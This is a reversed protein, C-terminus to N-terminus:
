AALPEVSPLAAVARPAARHGIRVCRHVLSVGAVAPLVALASADACASALAAAVLCGSVAGLDWGGEAAFHFSFAAGSRQAREYLLSMVVPVYLANVAAGTLSAVAAADPWWAAAARLAFGAALLLCVANLMVERRGRDISRGCLWSVLAGALGAAANIAGLAQYHSGLASFLIMPWAIVLGSSLWGDAAFTALALRDPALLTERLSPVPGAPIAPLLSLPLTSLLTTGAALGFTAAPGCGTLLAAGALPGAVNILTGITTRLGVQRGRTTSDGCVATAAHYIPWYLAEGVAVCLMWAALWLPRDAHLLPLFQLGVLSAGAVLACRYGTRRVLELSAFRLVARMALYAAYCALAAALSFGSQLLFAGIFGGVLSAGLQFLSFHLILLRQSVAQGQM